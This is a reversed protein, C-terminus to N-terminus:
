LGHQTFCAVVGVLLAVVGVAHEDVVQLSQALEENGCHLLVHARLLLHDGVEVLLSVEEELAGLLAFFVESAQLFGDIPEVRLDELFAVVALLYPRILL